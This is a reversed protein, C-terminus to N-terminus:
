QILKWAQSSVSDERLEGRQELILMHLLEDQRKRLEKIDDLLLEVQRLNNTALESMEQMTKLIQDTIKQYAAIIKEQRSVTQLPVRKKPNKIDMFSGEIIKAQEEESYSSDKRLKREVPAAEGSPKQAAIDYGREFDM